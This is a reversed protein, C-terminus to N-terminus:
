VTCNRTAAGAVPPVNWRSIFPALTVPASVIGLVPPQCFQCVTVPVTVSAAPGWVARSTKSLAAAPMM